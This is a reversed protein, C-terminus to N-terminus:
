MCIQNARSCKYALWGYQKNWIYLRNGGFLENHCSIELRQLIDCHYASMWSSELADYLSFRLGVDKPRLVTPNDFIRRTVIDLVSIANTTEGYNSSEWTRNLRNSTNKM